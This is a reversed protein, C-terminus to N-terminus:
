VSRVYLILSDQRVVEVIQDVELVEDCETRAQWVDGDIAVLGSVLGPRITEKVMVRRGILAEVGTKPLAKDKNIRQLFPRLLLLAALSVVCFFIIQWVLGLELFAPLIAAFAGVGFCALIFGPTLIELICLVIGLLLWLEAASLSFGLISLLM